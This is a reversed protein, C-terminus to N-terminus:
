HVTLTGGLGLLIGIVLAQLRTLGPTLQTVVSASETVRSTTDSEPLHTATAGEITMFDIKSTEIATKNSNEPDTSVTKTTTPNATDTRQDVQTPMFDFVAGDRRTYTFDKLNMWGAKSTEKWDETVLMSTLSPFSFDTKGVYGICCRFHKFMSQTTVILRLM